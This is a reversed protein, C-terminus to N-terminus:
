RVRLPGSPFGALYSDILTVTRESAARSAATSAGLGMHESAINELYDAVQDVTQGQRLRSVAQLLYSDYEDRPCSSDALGIPDWEKWGIERLRDLELKSYDTMGAPM